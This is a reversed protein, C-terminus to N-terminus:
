HTHTYSHTQTHIHTLTHTYKHMHELYLVLHHLFNTQRGTSHYYKCWMPMCHFANTLIIAMSIPVIPYKYRFLMNIDGYSMYM